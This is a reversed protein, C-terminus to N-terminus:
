KVLVQLNTGPPKPSAFELFRSWCVFCFLRCDTRSRAGFVKDWYGKLLRETSHQTMFLWNAAHLQQGDPVEDRKTDLPGIVNSLAVTWGCKNVPM